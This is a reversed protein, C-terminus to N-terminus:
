KLSNMLESGSAGKPVSASPRPLETAFERQEM